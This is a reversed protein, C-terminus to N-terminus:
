HKVTIPGLDYTKQVWGDCLVAQPRVTGAPWSSSDFSVAFSGPRNMLFALGNVEVVGVVPDGDPDDVIATFSLTADATAAIKGTTITPPHNTPPPPGKAPSKSWREITTIEWDALAPAPLPPMKPFRAGSAVQIDSGMLASASSALVLGPDMALAADGCVTPSMEYFDLRYSQGTDKATSGHCGACQGRVIPAVDAWTPQLPAVPEPSCAAGSLLAGAVTLVGTARGRSRPNSRERPM